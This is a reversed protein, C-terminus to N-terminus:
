TKRQQDVAGGRRLRVCWITGFTALIGSLVAGVFGIPKDGPEPPETSFITAATLSITSLWLGATWFLIVRRSFRRGPEDPSQNLPMLRDSLTVRLCWALYLFLGSCFAIGIGVYLQLPSGMLWSVIAGGLLAATAAIIYLILVVLEM